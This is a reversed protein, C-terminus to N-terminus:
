KENGHKSTDCNSSDLSTSLQSSNLSNNNNNNPPDSGNDTM